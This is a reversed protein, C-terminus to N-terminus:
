TPQGGAPSPTPVSTARSANGAENAVAVDSSGRGLPAGIGVTPDIALLKGLEASVLQAAAEPTIGASKLADPVRALLYDRGTSIAAALSIKNAGDGGPQIMQKYSEGAARGVSQIIRTNIQHQRLWLLALAFLSPVLATAFTQVWTLILASM